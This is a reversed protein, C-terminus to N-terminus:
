SAKKPTAAKKTTKKVASKKAASKKAPSKKAATKKAGARKRGPRPPADRRAQLLEAAREITINEETDGSRLSANVEGDTVYPGFRGSRVTVEKGSVPDPGLSRAPTAAARGRGRQKPQALIALAEDLTISFLQEESELTRTEAGKKVYPGYRGNHVVVDEDEV